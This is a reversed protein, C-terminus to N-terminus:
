EKSLKYLIISIGYNLLNYKSLPNEGTLQKIKDIRQSITNRHLFMLDAVKSVNNNNNILNFLTDILDSGNEKDYIIIPNINELLLEIDDYNLKRYITDILVVEKYFVIDKEPFIKKNIYLARISQEYKIKFDFINKIGNDISIRIFLDKEKFLRIIDEGLKKLNNKIRHEDILIVIKDSVSTIFFNKTCKLIYMNVKNVIKNKFDMIEEESKKTTLENFNKVDLVMIANYNGLNLNLSKARRYVMKENVNESFLLEQFFSDILENKYQERKTKSFSASVLISKIQNLAIIEFQDLKKAENILLTGYYYNNSYIPYISFIKNDFSIEKTELNDSVNIEDLIENLKNFEEKIEGSSDYIYSNIDVFFTKREILSELTNLINRYSNDKLTAEYILSYLDITKELNKNQEYLIGDIIPSIIDIYPKDKPAMILPFDLENCTNIIDDSIEKLVIGVHAIILGAAGSKQIMSITEKQKKVSDKISYLASILLENEKIYLKSTPVELVSVSEVKNKIGKKGALIICDRLQEIELVEKLRLDNM